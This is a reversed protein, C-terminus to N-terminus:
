GFLAVSLVCASDSVDLSEELTYQASLVLEPLVNYTLPILWLADKKTRERILALRLVLLNYGFCKIILVFGAGIAVNFAEALTSTLVIRESSVKHSTLGLIIANITSPQMWLAGSVKYFHCLIFDHLQVFPVAFVTYITTHIFAVFFTCILIFAAFIRM